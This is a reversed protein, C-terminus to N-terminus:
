NPKDAGDVPAKEGAKGGWSLKMDPTMGAKALTSAIRTTSAQFVTANPRRVPSVPEADVDRRRRYVFPSRPKPPPIVADAAENTTPDFEV